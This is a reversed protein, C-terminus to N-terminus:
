TVVQVSADCALMRATEATVGIPDISESGTTIDCRGDGGALVEAGVHVSVLYRDHIPQDEPIASAAEILAMFAEARRTALTDQLFGKRSAADPAALFQEIAALAAVGADSPLDIRISLSGNDNVEYRLALEEHQQEEASADRREVRRFGSVIREIQNSTGAKAWIVLTEEIEPTAIRTIARVKSYSLEGSAMAASILPFEELARAVRVKERAARMDLGVQWSLWAATSVCEWQVYAERRDFEAVLLLWAHEAATLNAAGQWIDHELQELPRDALPTSPDSVITETM